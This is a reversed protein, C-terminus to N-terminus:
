TCPLAVYQRRPYLQRYIFCYAFPKRIYHIIEAIPDCVSLHFTSVVQYPLYVTHTEVIADFTKLAAQVSMVSLLFIDFPLPM